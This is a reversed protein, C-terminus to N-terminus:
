GRVGLERAGVCQKRLRSVRCGGQSLVPRKGGDCAAAGPSSNIVFSIPGGFSALDAVGPADTAPTYAPPPPAAAAPDRYCVRRVDGATACSYSKGCSPCNAGVAENFWFRGGEYLCGGYCAAARMSGSWVAAPAGDAAGGAASDYAAASAAQCASATLVHAHTGDDCAAANAQQNVCYGSAPACDQGGATSAALAVLLPLSRLRPM